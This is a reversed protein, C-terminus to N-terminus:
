FGKTAKLYNSRKKKSALDKREIEM